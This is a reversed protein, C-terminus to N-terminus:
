KSHRCSHYLTQEPSKASPTPSAKVTKIRMSHAAFCLRGYAYQFCNKLWRADKIMVLNAGIVGGLIAGVGM